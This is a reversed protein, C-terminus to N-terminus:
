HYIRFFCKFVIDFCVNEEKLDYQILFAQSSEKCLYVSQYTKNLHM